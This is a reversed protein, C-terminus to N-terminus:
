GSASRTPRGPRRPPSWGPAAPRRATSSRARCGSRTAARCTAPPSTTSCRTAPSTTSRRARARRGQRPPRDRVRGRGRLRGQHQQRAADRDGGAGGARQPVQRLRRSARAGGDRGRGRAQQLQPRHLRDQGPRPDAAAAAGPRAPALSRRRRRAAGAPRRRRGAALLERLGGRHPEGLLAWADAVRDDEIVGARAGDGADYSVLRMPPCGVGGAVGPSFESRGAYRSSTRRPSRPEAARARHRGATEREIEGERVLWLSLVAGAFALLAGLLLVQNLGHVFGQEAANRAAGRAGAPVGALAQPLAGSSTAEVLGRAQDHSLGGAVSEAKSAGAGLFVAGWAAIGVAVGVQRFTDNIGAAMGSQERPVVSLAVDAIVPNLLGVGIGAVIFGALLATWESRVDLGGMLAM